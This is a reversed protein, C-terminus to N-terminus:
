IPLPTRVLHTSTARKREAFRNREVIKQAAEGFEFVTVTRGYLAVTVPILKSTQELLKTANFILRNFVDRM